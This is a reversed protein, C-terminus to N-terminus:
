KILITDLEYPFELPNDEGVEILERKMEAVSKGILKACDNDWFVFRAKFKGDVVMVELKSRPAQEVTIHNEYCKMKGDKLAVSKTCEGRGDYYCGAQGVEFKDLKAVTVRTTEKLNQMIYASGVAFKSKYKSVLHLPVIVQTMDRKSDLMVMYLHEKNSANPMSWLDKCQIIIKWLDKSDNIDRVVEIRRAM